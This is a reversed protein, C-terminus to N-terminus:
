ITLPTDAAVPHQPQRLFIRYIPKTAIKWQCGNPFSCLADLAPKNTRFSNNLINTLGFHQFLFV